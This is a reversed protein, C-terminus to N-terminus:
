KRIFFFSYVSDAIFTDTATGNTRDLINLTSSMLRDRPNGANSTTKTYLIAFDSLYEGYEEDFANTNTIKGFSTSLPGRIEYLDKSFPSTQLSGSFLIKKSYPCFVAAGCNLTPPTIDAISKKSIIALYLKDDGTFLISDESSSWSFKTERINNISTGMFNVSLNSGDSNVVRFNSKNTGADQLFVMRKGDPSLSSVTEQELNTAITKVLGSGDTNVVVTKSPMPPNNFTTLYAKTGDPSLEASYYNRALMKPNSGDDNSIMVSTKEDDERDSLIYILKGNRPPSTLYAKDAILRENTGDSNIKRISLTYHDPSSLESTAKVYYIQVPTEVEPITVIPPANLLGEKCSALTLLLTFLPLFKKM